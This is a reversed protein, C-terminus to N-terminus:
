ATRNRQMIAISQDFPSILNRGRAHHPDMRPYQAVQDFRLVMM